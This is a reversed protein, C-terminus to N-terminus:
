IGVKNLFFPVPHLEGGGAADLLDIALAAQAAM